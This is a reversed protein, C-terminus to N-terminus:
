GGPRSLKAAAAIASATKIIHDELLAAARDGDRALAADKLKEHEDAVDREALVLIGAGQRYRESQSYLLERLKGLWPSDCASVLAAHFASHAESYEEGIRDMGDSPLSARNLAEGAAIVADEWAADGVKISRRLCKREVDLRVRVLDQLEDISTPAARFGRQKDPLVFGESTLRSLAERVAGLSVGLMDATDKINLREGPALRCTLLEKRVERYARETLSSPRPMM